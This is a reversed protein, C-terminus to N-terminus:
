PKTRNTRQLYSFLDRLEQPKLPQLLGEPMASVASERMSQIRDRAIENREGNASVITMTGAAQEAILGSLIRGGTTEIEYNLFEKRVTASPDVISALLFERDARNAYTLDPGVQGGEGHLVHCAACAQRYLAHGRVPDGEGARLDNQLRRMEALKEEKTGSTINGWHKRILKDLEPDNHLAATRLQQFSIERAAIHKKDVAVLLAAAWEKRSLLVDRARHRLREPFSPCAALIEEALNLYDFSSLSELAALRVMEPADSKALRLFEEASGAYGLEALTRIMEIRLHPSASEDAALSTARARGNGRGIRCSFRILAADRTDERWLRDFERALADTVNQYHEFRRPIKLEAVASGAFLGGSGFGVPERPRDRFGQEVAAFLAPRESADAAAIVSACANLTAETGEATWRRLLRERVINRAIESHAAARGAFFESLEAIGAIAHREIAWWILLPLHPDDANSTGRLLALAIALGTPAALRQATCALQASVRADKEAAALQALRAAMEPSVTREDGLLRVAWHRVMASRHEVARLGFSENFGGSLYLAWLAELAHREDKVELVLSRLRFVAEPDRREALIRRAQRVIWPNRDSLLAVLQSSALNALQPPKTAKTGKAAIRYIRGNSRDWDADPDPHATRHDHWDAVYIANDPGMIVDTPAFWADNARLLEGGHSSAFTSARRYLQHWQVSHGLLDGAIHQGLFRPPLNTGQYVIGGVTVHGGHFNTHAVHEFYGFAYPNHLAGHKGFSKWYYAGQRAHLMRYPGANTSYILEGEADFDLGWSNGGGECFLEFKRTLPHYRWVGQQFEIGRIRSTVTSGQCGYLWGDPGWTLSNAVSHADEMGFGSLCVTPASDPVDDNDRDSYFLLYPAQLVFVGGHGFAFGSALNLGNVFDRAADARGDEDNDALITIRDAGRPGRPPPEPVRDYTTRSWRDVKVRRLGSPNPYQLYQIVWLRGRADFEIAVPQRVLPESAVLTVECDPPVTMRDAAQWPPFGQSLARLESGWLSAFLAASFLFTKMALQEVSGVRGILATIKGMAALKPQCSMATM